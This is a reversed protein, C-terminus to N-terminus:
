RGMIYNAEEASMPPNAGTTASNVFNLAQDIYGSLYETRQNQRFNENSKM